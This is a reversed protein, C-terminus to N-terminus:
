VIIDDAEGVVIINGFHLELVHQEVLHYMIINGNIKELVVTDM